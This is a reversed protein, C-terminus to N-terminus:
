SEDMGLISSQATCMELNDMGPNFDNWTTGRDALLRERDVRFVSFMIVSEANSHRTAKINNRRRFLRNLSCNYPQHNSVSDNGNHRWQLSWHHQRKCVGFMAHSQITKWAHSKWPFIANMGENILHSQLKTFYRFKHSHEGPYSCYITHNFAALGNIILYSPQLYIVKLHETHWQAGYHLM